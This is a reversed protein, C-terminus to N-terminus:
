VWLTVPWRRGRGELVFSLWFYQWDDSVDMEHRPGDSEGNSDAIEM